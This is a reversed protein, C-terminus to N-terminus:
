TNINNIKSYAHMVILHSKYIINNTHMMCLALHKHIGHSSFLNTNSNNQIVRLVSHCVCRCQIIEDNM